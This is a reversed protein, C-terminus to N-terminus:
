LRAAASSAAVVVHTARLRLRFRFLLLVPHGRLLPSRPAGRALLAPVVDLRVGAAGDEARTDPASAAAAAPQLPLAATRLTPRVSRTSRSRNTPRPRRWGRRSHHRRRRPVQGLTRFCRQVEISTMALRTSIRACHRSNARSAPAGAVAARAPAISRGGPGALPPPAPRRPNFGRSCFGCLVELSYRISDSLFPFGEARLCFQGQDVINIFRRGCFLRWPV